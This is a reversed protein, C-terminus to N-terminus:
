LESDDASVTPHVILILQFRSYLGNKASYLGHIQDTHLLKGCNYCDRCYDM